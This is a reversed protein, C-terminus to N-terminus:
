GGLSAIKALHGSQSINVPKPSRDLDFTALNTPIVATLKNLFTTLIYISKKYHRWFLMQPMQLLCCNHFIQSFLVLLIKPNPKV